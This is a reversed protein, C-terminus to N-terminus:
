GIKAGPVGISLPVSLNTTTTTGAEKPKIVGGTIVDSDLQNALTKAKSEGTGYMDKLEFIDLNNDQALSKKIAAELWVDSKALDPFSQTINNFADQVAKIPYKAIETSNAFLNILKNKASIQKSIADWEPTITQHDSDLAKDSYNTKVKDVEKINKKVIDQLGAIDNADFSAQKSGFVEKNIKDHLIRSNTLTDRLSLADVAMKYIPSDPPMVYKQSTEVYPFSGAIKTIGDVANALLKANDKGQTICIAKAIKNLSLRDLSKCSEAIKYISDKLIREETVVKHKYEATKHLLLDRTKVCRNLLVTPDIPTSKTASATKAMPKTYQGITYDIDKISLESATKKISTDYVEAIITNSDALEYEEARKEQPAAEMYAVTTAKNFATALKEIKAPNLKNEKAIKIIANNVSTGSLVENSIKDLHKLLKRQETASMKEM